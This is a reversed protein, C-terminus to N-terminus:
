LQETPHISLHPNQLNEYDQVNQQLFKRRSICPLHALNLYKVFASLAHTHM